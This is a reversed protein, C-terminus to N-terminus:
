NLVIYENIFYKNILKIYRIIILNCLLYLKEPFLFIYTNQQLNILEEDGQM